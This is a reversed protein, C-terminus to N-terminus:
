EDNVEVSQQIGKRKRMRPMAGALRWTSLFDARSLYASDTKLSEQLVM